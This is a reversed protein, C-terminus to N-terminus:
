FLTKNVGYFNSWPPPMRFKGRSVEVALTVNVRDNSSNDSILEIDEMHFGQYFGTELATTLAEKVEEEWDNEALIILGLESEEVM